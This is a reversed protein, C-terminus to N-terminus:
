KIKCTRFFNYTRECSSPNWSLIGMLVNQMFDKLTIDKYIPPNEESLLEKILGYVRSEDESLNAPNVFFSAM